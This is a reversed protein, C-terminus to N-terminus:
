IATDGKIPLRVILVTGKGAIGNIEVKGGISHARERMGLLGLSHVGSRESETIGRGNDRIELVFEGEDEEIIINVKTAQAHRLMNTMAEQFIRFVTTAQERSLEDNEILSDFRCVIGTREQFQQAHWEIASILGLDDLVGPRLESSIRRVTNITTDVLGVMEEVKERASPQSVPNGNGSYDKNLRLLSWKLSTLAAGLEDHLERAIRIGEEEKARRLSESLARLQVSSTKLQEEAQKRETIDEVMGVGFFEGPQEAPIVSAILNVWRVQGDKRIYRKEMQYHDRKGEIMEQHLPFEKITDDPHTFDVFWLHLLEEKTYGLIKQFAPNTEVPRGEPNVIAIGIAADNFITRWLNESKRLAEEALKRETIDHQLFIVCLENNIVIQEASLSVHRIEGRRTKFDAEFERVSGQEELLSRLKERVEPEVLKLELATHGVAEERTYGYVSTWRENVELIIGDQRRYISIPEPSAHFAKSFKDESLRLGEEARSRRARQALLAFILLAEVLCLSIVGIIRWRYQDWFSLVKFRVVSGPPLLEESIGWRRLERWDFIPVLPANEVPIDSPRAGNAVQTAIEGARAGTTEALNIYGGVVGLGIYLNTMGYIPVRVSPAFSALIERTELVRGQENRSQQWVYLVLSREPLAKTKAILEEPQLDTLYEIEVRSEYGQLQERALTELRKDHELTGSVIFIRKTDPHLRLALDVTQRHATLIILGTMGPGAALQETTPHQTATFVIPAQPFLDARYKLLFNLSADSTAVVVDIRRDAYKQRLHDHLLRSQHEGPFRDSELYEPYYEFPGAPASRLAAQFDRDFNVNWSYDKNYWYLVLVRKPGADAQARAGLPFLWIVVCVLWAARRILKARVEAVNNGPKMDRGGKTERM